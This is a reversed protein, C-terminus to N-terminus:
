LSYNSPLFSNTQLFSCFKNNKPNKLKCKEQDKVAELSGCIGKQVELTECWFSQRLWVFTWSTESNTESVIIMSFDVNNWFFPIQCFHRPCSMKKPFIDRSCYNIYWCMKEVCGHLLNHGFSELVGRFKPRVREIWPPINLQVNFVLNWTVLHQGYIKRKWSGWIGSKIQGYTNHM